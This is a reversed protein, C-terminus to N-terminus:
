GIHPLHDSWSVTDYAGTPLSRLSIFAEVVIYLRAIIYLVLCVRLLTGFVIRRPNTNWRYWLRYLPTIPDWIKTVHVIVLFTLGGSATVCGAVRWMIQEIYTPFHSGWVALHLGGYLLGLLALFSFSGEVNVLMDELISPSDSMNSAECHLFHHGTIVATRKYELFNAYQPQSLYDDVFAVILDDTDPELPGYVSLPLGVMCYALGRDMSIAQPENVDKPKSWWIAYMVLACGVHALTNLELLTVPLGYAKRVITQVFMWLAQACVLLKALSDAKTKDAIGVDDLDPLMDLTALMLVGAPTLVRRAEIHQSFHPGLESVRRSFEDETSSLTVEFGGMAAYFAVPLTWEKRKPLNFRQIIENREKRLWRATKWQSYARWVVIEPAFLALAAWKVKKVFRRWRTRDQKPVINLHIATWVCLVLTIVCTSVLGITGRGSPGPVYGPASSSTDTPLAAVHHFLLFLGILRHVLIDLLPRM